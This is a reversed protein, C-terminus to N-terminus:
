DQSELDKDKIQEISIKVQLGVFGNRIITEGLHIAEWKENMIVLVGRQGIYLYGKLELKNLM